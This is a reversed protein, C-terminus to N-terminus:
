DIMITHHNCLEHEFSFALYVHPAAGQPCLTSCKTSARAAALHRRWRAAGRSGRRSAAAATLHRAALGPSASPPSALSSHPLLGSSTPGRSLSSATAAALAMPQAALSQLSLLGHRRRVGDPARRAAPPNPPRRPTHHPSRTTAGLPLLPAHASCCSSYATAAHPRRRRPSRAM